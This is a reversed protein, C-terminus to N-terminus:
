RALEVPSIGLESLRKRLTNRNIGLVQAARLQNGGTDRLVAEFLPREFAALATDYVTGPAPRESALWALVALDLGGEGAAEDRRLNAELLAALADGDITDERALLALRYIFNRLERVNGRWPQRALLAAAADSLRRRPLGEQAALSLFHRALAPIDDARERLPPLVIPVVNLRYYLDERFNGAAIMPELDRNTAAIIRVDVKIEERGGVRRISGSQLARLLRTQAQMPMDGIEDLFLTGGNAQEFKGIHRAVAGTFAGKEHGFLESEILEAPIAATNVAVFPGAKRHGLQHIAEAVLEKGTGSEGLVLVTLDNRLVRTIMRYVAQMPASRGVLPLGAPAAEGEEGLRSGANGVAQRVTRALEDIDFPKPFYEFAGTDTARVATDLTNQASLIIIPLEPDAARVRDITAIGDGDTLIVDTVLASFRREALQRDREAISVCHVVDFGEAELAATIVIAISPDDEVLLVSM